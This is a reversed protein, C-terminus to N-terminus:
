TLLTSGEHIPNTSKYFLSWLFGERRGSQSSVALFYLQPDSLPGEGSCSWALVKVKSM